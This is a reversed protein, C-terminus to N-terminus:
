NCLWYDVGGHQSCTGSGVSSSRTGDNCVAGVRNPNSNDCKYESGESEKECKTFWISMMCIFLLIIIRKM